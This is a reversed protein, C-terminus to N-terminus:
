SGHQPHDKQSPSMAYTAPRFLMSWGGGFRDRVPGRILSLAIVLLGVVTSNVTTLAAGYGLVWPAIVLWAGLPVGVWRLPRTVQSLAVIAIAAVLPGVIRDNIRAAGAYGLVDSAVMLWIGLLATIIRSIM